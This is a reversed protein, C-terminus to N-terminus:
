RLEQAALGASESIITAVFNPLGWREAAQRASERMNRRHETDIRVTVTMGARLFAASADDVLSLKVPVRQVVKVWNGTANQPPLLAFEAGTAPAIGTVVADWTRDPHADVVVTANQGSRVHTLQTEKLNAEIWAPASEILSFLPKGEEAFEGAQLNMNNIVGAAPATVTTDEINIAAQERAAEALLYRPHKEIPLDPRGALSAIVRRKQEAIAKV